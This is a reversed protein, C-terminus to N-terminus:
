RRVAEWEVVGSPGAMVRAEMDLSNPRADCWSELTRRLEAEDCAWGIHIREAGPRTLYIKWRARPPPRDDNRTAVKPRNFCPMGTGTGWHESM